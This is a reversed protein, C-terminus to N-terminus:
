MLFLECNQQDVHIYKKDSKIDKTGIGVNQNVVDRYCDVNVYAFKSNQSKLGRIYCLKM